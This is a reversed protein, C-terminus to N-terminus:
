LGAKEALSALDKGQKMLAELENLAKEFEEDTGEWAENLDDVAHPILRLVTKMKTILENNENM